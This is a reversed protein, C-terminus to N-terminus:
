EEIATYGTVLGNEYLYTETRTKNNFPYSVTNLSGDANYTYTKTVPIGSITETISTILGNKYNCTTASSLPVVPLDTVGSQVNVGDSFLLANKSQTVVVGTGDPTKVTLRYNGTTRNCVIWQSTPKAPVVLSIHGTLIGTLILCGNGAEEQKLTVNVKGAVSKVLVGGLLNQIFETTSILNSCDGAPPTVATSAGTIAIANFDNLAPLMDVGDTYVHSTKGQSISIGNGNQTKITLTYAGSTRNNIIWQRTIAAPLTVSTHGKLAGTFILIGYGAEADTLVVNVSGALSKVMVGGFTRLVFEPTVLGNTSTILDEIKKRLFQTRSALQKAQLNDVGEPGGEVPDTTELQYIGPIWIDQEILDM